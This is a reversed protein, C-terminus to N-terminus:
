EDVQEVAFLLAFHQRQTSGLPDADDGPARLRAAAQRAVPAVGAGASLGVLRYAPEERLGLLRVLLNDFPDRSDRWRAANGSRLHREGPKQCLRDDGGRDDAGGPQVMEVLGEGAHLYFKRTLLNRQQFLRVRRVLHPAEDPACRTETLWDRRM